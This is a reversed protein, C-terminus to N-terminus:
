IGVATWWQQSAAGPKDTGQNLAKLLINKKGKHFYFPGIFEPGHGARKRM